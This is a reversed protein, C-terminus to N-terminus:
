LPRIMSRSRRQEEGIEVDIGRAALADALDNELFAAAETSGKLYKEFHSLCIARMTDVSHAAPCLESFPKFAAAMAPGDIEPDAFDPRLYGSRLTEHLLEANDSWHIHGAGALVALRKPAPMQFYAARVDDPMVLADASGTIIFTSVNSKWDSLDLLSGLRRVQPAPSNTGCMPAMPISAKQRSDVSNLMLSTFGGMSVGFTGINEPDVISNLLEYSGSLIRDIAASAQGPRAKASDDIPKEISSDSAWMDKANDGPFDPAAVTFGHSALYTCIETAERRHGYGGHLYIVLPRKVELADADRVAEQSLEPYLDVVKFKDKSSEELDKGRHNETAPYWVETTLSYGKGDTDTLEITRVGVPFEGRIFPNYTM